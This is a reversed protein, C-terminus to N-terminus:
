WGVGQMKGTLSRTVQCTLMRTYPSEVTQKGITNITSQVKTCSRKYLKAAGQGKQIAQNFAWLADRADQM